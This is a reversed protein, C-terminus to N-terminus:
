QWFGYAQIDRNKLVEYSNPYFIDILNKRYEYTKEILTNPVQFNNKFEFFKSHYWKESSINLRNEKALEIQLVSSLALMFDKFLEDYRFFYIDALEHNVQYSHPLFGVSLDSPKLSFIDFIEHISEKYGVLKSKELDSIFVKNLESISYSSIITDERNLNENKRLVGTGYWQFFSSVHREVPLRFNTIIKPKKGCERKRKALINKFSDLSLDLNRTAHLHIAKHGNARFTNVISQTGTKHSSFVIYDSDM